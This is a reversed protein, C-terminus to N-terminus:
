YTCRTAAYRMETTEPPSERTMCAVILAVNVVRKLQEFMTLEM